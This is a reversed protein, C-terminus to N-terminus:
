RYVDLGVRDAHTGKLLCVLVLILFSLCDVDDGM